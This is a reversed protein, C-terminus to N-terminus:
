DAKHLIILTIEPRTAIRGPYGLTGLGRNVYLFQIAGNKHMKEYLGGWQKFLLSAPSWKINGREIALQM